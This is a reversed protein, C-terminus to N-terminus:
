VGVVRGDPDVGLHDVEDFLCAGALHCERLTTEVAIVLLMGSEKVGCAKFRQDLWNVLKKAIMVRMALLSTPLLNVTFPVGRRGRRVRSIEVQKEGGHERAV